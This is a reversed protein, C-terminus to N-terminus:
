KPKLADASPRSVESGSRVKAPNEGSLAATARLDPVSRVRKPARNTIETPMRSREAPLAHANYAPEISIPVPIARPM